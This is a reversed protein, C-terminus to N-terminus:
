PSSSGAEKQVAREEEEGETADEGKKENEERSWKSSGSDSTM